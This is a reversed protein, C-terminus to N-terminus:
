DSRSQTRMNEVAKVLDTKAKATEWCSWFDITSSIPKYKPINLVIRTPLMTADGVVVAEGVELSPLVDLLASISEPLLNRVVSMDRENTLRLSIINNCQSLVTTSVDSPRQSVVFLAVGYKRGEKSIREFNTLSQRSLQDPQGSPIYLHAEDCILLLPHRGENNDGANHWFQIEYLLRAVLGLVIPLVDSPVESFDIVKIGPKKHDKIAGHGLLKLAFEHLTEYRSWSEPMQFMFGYRRDSVRANLRILMRTLKNFLPGQNVKPKDKKEGSKYLEGTDIVEENKETLYKVLAGLEFPVPSDVTFSALVKPQKAENLFQKKLETVGELLVMAQNPASADSHEVLLSRLEEFNMFWYPLYIVGDMDKGIDSPGAIRWHQVYPLSVYEGHLDFLVINAHPLNSAQELINAVAWSKGSGTSGLLAAHRQFLKDGDLFARANKDLTYVGIELPCKSETKGASGIIGMFAELVSGEMPFVRRNIDPLSLVARTFYHDKGQHKARYTGVLTIQVSNEEIPLGPTNQSNSAEQVPDRWIRNVLGILWENADSGQMTVLHGVRAKMLDEPSRVRIFVQSTDVGRVEGFAAENKFDFISM